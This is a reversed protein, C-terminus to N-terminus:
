SRFWLERANGRAVKEAAESPLQGLFARIREVAADLRDFRGLSDSGWVFRDAHERVVDAWRPEIEEQPGLEETASWSLDIHLRDLAALLRDVHEPSPGVHQGSIGAHCWVIDVDDRWGMLQDLEPLYAVEGQGTSGANQHIALPVGRRACVDVLRRVAPHDGRPREGVAHTSLRGHRLMVEGVGVFPGQELLRDIRSAADLDTPEVGCATPALRDAAEADQYWFRVAEDTAPWMYCEAEDDLYRSPRRPQGCSWKKKYPVGFVVASEIGCLDMAELLREPPSCEQLFDCIHVHADV